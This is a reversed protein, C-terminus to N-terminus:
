IFYMISSKRMLELVYVMNVLTQNLCEHHEYEKAIDLFQSSQEYICYFCDDVPTDAKDQYTRYNEANVM